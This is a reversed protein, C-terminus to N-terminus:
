QALSLVVMLAGLSFTSAATYLVPRMMSEYQEGLERKLASTSWIGFPFWSRLPLRFMLRMIFFGYTLFSSFFALVSIIFIIKM